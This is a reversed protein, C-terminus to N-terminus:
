NKMDSFTIDFKAPARAKLSLERYNPGKASEKVSAGSPKISNIAEANPLGLTVTQAKGSTLELTLKAAPKDWALRNITVHGRALTGRIEGQPWEAPLAPLLDLRGPQSFALMTNVIQPIGGNGDTNYIDANPEHSTILSPYMSRKVAMVKLRGYAEEPMRLFAASVGSQVRGFSSQEGGGDSGAIKARVTAQAARWLAPTTEFIPDFSQFCPYLM